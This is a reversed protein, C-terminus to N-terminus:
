CGEGVWINWEFPASNKVNEWFFDSEGLFCEGGFFAPTTEGFDIGGLGRWTGSRKPKGWWWGLGARTERGDGRLESHFDWPSNRLSTM